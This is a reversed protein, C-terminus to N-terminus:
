LTEGRWEAEPGTAPPAAGWLMESGRGLVEEETWGYTAVFAPNVFSIRGDREKERVASELVRPLASLYAREQDKVLYDFAGAKMGQVARREDGSGTVIISAAGRAHSLVELATGDGLSYDTVVADFSRESLRERAEHVSGAAHHDWPLQARRVLREFAMRDVADDDVYLVRLKRGEPM